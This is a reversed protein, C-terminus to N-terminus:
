YKPVFRYVGYATGFWLAGDKSQAMTFIMASPPPYYNPTDKSNTLDKGDWTTWKEGDFRAIRYGGWSAIWVIGSSTIAIGVPPYRGLEVNSYSISKENVIHVLDPGVTGAWISGDLATTICSIESGSWQFKWKGEHYSILDKQTGIWVIEESTVLLHNVYDNYISMPFKISRWQGNEYRSLGVRSGTWVIGDPNVAIAEIEKSILGADTSYATLKEGDYRLVGNARTGLWLDGDPAIALDTIRINGLANKDLYVQWNEGDFSLLDRDDAFWLIGNSSQSIHLIESQILDSAIRYETWLTPDLTSSPYLTEMSQVSLSPTPSPPLYDSPLSTTSNAIRPSCASMGWTFLVVLFMMRRVM